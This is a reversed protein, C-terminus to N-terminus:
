ARFGQINALFRRGAVMQTKIVHAPVDPLPAPIEERARVADFSAVAPKISRVGNASAVRGLAGGWGLRTDPHPKAHNTGSRGVADTRLRGPMLWIRRRNRCQYIMLVLASGATEALPM